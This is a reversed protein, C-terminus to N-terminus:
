SLSDAGKDLTDGLRRKVFKRVRKPHRKMIAPYKLVYVRLLQQLFYSNGEDLTDESERLRDLVCGMFEVASLNPVSHAPRPADRAGGECEPTDAARMHFPLPTRRECDRSHDVREKSWASCALAPANAVSKPIEVQLTHLLNLQIYLWSTQLLQHPKCIDAWRFLYGAVFRLLFTLEEPKMLRQEWLYPSRDHPNEEMSRLSGLSGTDVSTHSTSPENRSLAESDSREVTGSTERQQPSRDFEATSGCADGSGGCAGPGGAGSVSSEGRDAFGSSSGGDPNAVSARECLAGELGKVTVTQATASCSSDSELPQPTHRSPSHRMGQSQAGEKCDPSAVEQRPSLTCDLRKSKEADLLLVRRVADALQSVAIFDPNRQELLLSPVLLFLPRFVNECHEAWGAEVESTDLPRATGECGSRSAEPYGRACAVPTKSVKAYSLLKALGWAMVAWERSLPVSSTKEFKQLSQKGRGVAGRGGDGDQSFASFVSPSRRSESNWSSVQAENPLGAAFAARSCHRLIWAMSQMVEALVPAPLRVNEKGLAHLALSFSVVIKEDSFAEDLVRWDDGPPGRADHKYGLSANARESPKERSDGASGAKEVPDITRMDAVACAEGRRAVETQRVRVTFLLRHLLLVLAEHRRSAPLSKCSTFANMASAVLQPTWSEFASLMLVDAFVSHFVSALVGAEGAPPASSCERGFSFPSSSPPSSAPLRPSSFPDRANHEEDRLDKPKGVQEGEGNVDDALSPPESACPRPILSDERRKPRAACAARRGEMHRMELPFRACASLIQVASSLPLQQRLSPSAVLHSLLRYFIPSVDPIRSGVWSVGESDRSSGFPLHPSGSSVGASSPQCVPLPASAAVSVTSASADHLSECFLPPRFTKKQPLPTSSDGTINDGNSSRECDTARGSNARTGKERTERIGRTENAAVTRHRSEKRHRQALAFTTVAMSLDQPSLTEIRDEVAKATALVLPPPFVGLRAYANFFFLLLHPPLSPAYRTIRACVDKLLSDFIGPLPPFSSSGNLRSALTPERTGDRVASLGVSLAEPSGLERGGCHSQISSPERSAASPSSGLPSSSPFSDHRPALQPLAPARPSHELLLGVIPVLVDKWELSSLGGLRGRLAQAAATYVALIPDTFGCAHACPFVLKHVHTLVFVVDRTPMHHASQALRSLLQSEAEGVGGQSPHGQEGEIKPESTQGQFAAPSAMKKDERPRMQSAAEHRRSDGSRVSSTLGHHASPVVYRHDLSTTRESQKYVRDSRPGSRNFTRRSLLAQRLEVTCAHVGKWLRLNENAGRGAESGWDGKSTPACFAVRQFSPSGGRFYAGKSDSPFPPKESRFTSPHPPDSQDGQLLQARSSSAVTRHERNFVAHPSTAFSGSSAQHVAFTSPICPAPVRLSSPVGFFYRAGSDPVSPRPVWCCSSTRPQVAEREHKFIKRAHMTRFAPASFPQDVMPLCWPLSRDSYLAFKTSFENIEPNLETSSVLREEITQDHASGFKGTLPTATGAYRWRFHAVADIGDEAEVAAFPAPIMRTRRRFLTWKRSDRSKQRAKRLNGQTRAQRDRLSALSRLQQLGSWASPGKRPPSAATPTCTARFNM